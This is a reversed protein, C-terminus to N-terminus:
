SGEKRGAAWEPVFCPAAKSILEFISRINAWSLWERLGAVSLSPPYSKDPGQIRGTDGEQCGRVVPLSTGPVWTGTHALGSQGSSMGYSGVEMKKTGRLSKGFEVRNGVSLTSFSSSTTPISFEFFTFLEIKNSFYFLLVSLLALFLSCPYPPLLALGAEWLGLEGQSGKLVSNGTM